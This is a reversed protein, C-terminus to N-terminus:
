PRLGRRELLMADGFSFFRYREAIGHEYIERWREGVFADVLLLLSSRPIHFNTMLRDVVKFPFDGHIYLSSRGALQGTAAATELTRVVTTGVALVRRAAGIRRWASEEVRYSETHIRHGEITTSKVPLFTDLGVSLEVRVVEAGASRIGELVADDLHLGATPAAASSPRSAFVTQYREPDALPAKIYPPLPTEGLREIAGADALEVTLKVPSDGSREQREIVRLVEAGAPDFFRSGPVVKRSPNCLALWVGASREELFLFEVRGGTDRHLAVRAPIVRTDNVVVVEGPKVLSPLDFVHRDLLEAGTADLLRASSRPEVPHQAVLAPDLEYEFAALEDVADGPAPRDTM